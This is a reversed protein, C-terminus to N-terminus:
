TMRRVRFRPEFSANRINSKTFTDSRSSEGLVRESSKVRSFRTAGMKKKKKKRQDHRM